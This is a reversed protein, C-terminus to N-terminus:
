KNKYNNEEYFKHYEMELIKANAKIDYGNDKVLKIVKEKIENRDVIEISQIKEVWNNINDISEFYVLDTIKVSKTIKDSIICPLGNIQWEILVNPFGEFRSPFVMIDMANLLKSVEEIPIQGLFLVNKELNLNKVKEKINNELNGKGALILYYNNNKKYLENFVYISSNHNKQYNFNGINGLVIKDELHYKKRYKKREEIKYSFENIDKGNNVIFVKEKKGFLWEGAEIGCAFAHTYSIKFLPKCIIHLLKHDTDTNRSHAIRVKVGAFKATLLQLFMMSSSGHVHVIDYKEEKLLKYLKRCYLIPNSQHMKKGNYGFEILKNGNKTFEKKLSDEVINPVLYDMQIKNFDINNYYNLLSMGIGNYHLNSTMINLVKIKM